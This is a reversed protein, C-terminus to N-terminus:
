ASQAKRWSDAYYAESATIQSCLTGPQAVAVTKTTAGVQAPLVVMLAAAMLGGVACDFKLTMM